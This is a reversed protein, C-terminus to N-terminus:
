KPYANSKMEEKAAAYGAMFAVEYSPRMISESRERWKFWSQFATTANRKATDEKTVLDCLYCGRGAIYGESQCHLCSM